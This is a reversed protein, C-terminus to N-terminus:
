IFAIDEAKNSTCRQTGIEKDVHTFNVLFGKNLTLHAETSDKLAKFGRIRKARTIFPISPTTTDHPTVCVTMISDVAGLAMGLIASYAVEPTFLTEIKKAFLTRSTHLPYFAQM